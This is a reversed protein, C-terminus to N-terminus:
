PKDEKSITFTDKLMECLFAANCSLHWLHPLGSEADVGEPNEIFALLHRYLADIYRRPEVQRWNESNGYKRDGYDRVVAIDRIIECPVLSLRPKGADAKATQDNICNGM